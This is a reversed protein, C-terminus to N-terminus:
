LGLFQFEGDSHKGKVFKAHYYVNCYKLANFSRGGRVQYIKDKYFVNLKHGAICAMAKIDDYLMQERQGDGEIELRDAFISVRATKRYMQKKKFVIVELVDATDAYMPADAYPSLDLSRIYSEQYDYWDAVYKFDGGGDLAELTMDPLYRHRRGCRKCTLIDGATEFETLGCEPCIYLVRELGEAAASSYFLGGNATEDVCLGTRIAEYLEADTMGAYEEPEIVRAVGAHMKGNRCNDAWRPKVGYGGEIRFLAIPLGLKRALAAVGPKIFCSRGSYTRNGEPFLAINGGEAAVRLCTRIAGLDLAAKVIPIPATLWEICRSVFGNSFVDEMAVYYVPKRFALGIFFQDFDTQHNTLILWNRKGEARFKDVKIHYKVSAAIKFFPRFFWTSVIHRFKTWKARKKLDSEGGWM